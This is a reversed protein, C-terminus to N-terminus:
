AFAKAEGDALQMSSYYISVLLSKYLIAVLKGKMLPKNQLTDHNRQQM